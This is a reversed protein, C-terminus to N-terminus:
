EPLCSRTPDIWVGIWSEQGASDRALVFLTDGSDPIDAEFELVRLTVPSDFRLSVIAYGDAPGGDPWPSSTNHEIVASASANRINIPESLGVLIEAIGSSDTALVSVRNPVRPYFHQDSSGNRFYCRPRDAAETGGMAEGGGSRVDKVIIRPPTRDGPRPTTECASAAFL